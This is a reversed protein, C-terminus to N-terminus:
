NESIKTRQKIRNFYILSFQGLQRDREKNLLKKYENEFNIEKKQERIENIRLILYGNATQIPVSIKGIEMNKLEELIFKSLQTEKIWGIKGGFKSTPSISFINSTNDFGKEEISNLINQVKKELDEGTKIEFLIESLNYETINEVKSIQDKLRKKLEEENISVQKSYKDFILKNWLGEIKVKEKVSNIKIEYQAMYNQFDKENKFGFNTYFNIFIPEIFAEAKSFDFFKNLEINKIKENILSSKALESIENESLNKLNNNLAILYQQEKVIDLNTIIENEIKYKIYVNSDSFTEQSIFLSLLIIKLAFFLKKLSM